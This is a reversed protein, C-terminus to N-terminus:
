IASPTVYMVLTRYFVTSYTGRCVMVSLHKSSVSCLVYAGTCLGCTCSHENSGVYRVVLQCLLLLRFFFTFLSTYYSLCHWSLTIGVCAMFAYEYALSSTYHWKGKVVTSPPPSFPLFCQLNTQKQTLSTFLRIHPQSLVTNKIEVRVPPSLQVEPEPRKAGSVFIMNDNLLPTYLAIWDSRM